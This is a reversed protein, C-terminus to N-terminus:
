LCHQTEVKFAKVENFWREVREIQQEKSTLDQWTNMSAQEHSLVRIICFGNAVSSKVSCIQM